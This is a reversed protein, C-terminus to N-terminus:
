DKHKAHAGRGQFEDSKSSDKGDFEFWGTAKAVKLEAASVELDMEQGPDLLVQGNETNIGRPGKQLNKVKM